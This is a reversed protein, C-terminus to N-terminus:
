MRFVAGRSNSWGSLAKGGVALTEPLQLLYAFINCDGQFDRGGRFIAHILETTPHSIMANAAGIRLSTSTM